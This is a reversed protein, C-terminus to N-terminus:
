RRVEGTFQQLRDALREAEAAAYLDFVAGSFGPVLDPRSEAGLAVLLYDFALDGDNTRVTRRDLDIRTITSRRVDVGRTSLAALPREGEARQGRGSAIWIKRLGMMFVPSRDVLTVTHASGLRSRLELAATIGGFGGGLIVIRAGTM